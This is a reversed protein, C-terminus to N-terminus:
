KKEILAILDKTAKAATRIGEVEDEWLPPEYTQEIGSAGVKVPLGVFTDKIGFEGQAYVACPIVRKKDLLV